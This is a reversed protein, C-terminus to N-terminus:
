EENKVRRKALRENKLVYQWVTNNNFLFFASETKSYYYNIPMRVESHADMLEEFSQVKIVNYGQLDPLADINVIVSDYTSIIRKLTKEYKNKENFRKHNKIYIVIMFIALLGLIIGIVTYFTYIPGTNKILKTVTKVNDKVDSDISAEISTQSLPLKLILNSKIPLDIEKGNVNSNVVMSIKLVGDSNGLKMENKFTNLIDNYKSYDVDISENIVYETVKDLEVEKEDTIKYDKTWYNGIENEVKNAEITAVIYYKYDGKVSTDFSVENKFDIHIHDILSTIYTKGQEIYPKDFFNNEKLYVKYNIANSEKYKVQTVKNSNLGTMIFLISDFLFISAFIVVVIQRKIYKKQGTM